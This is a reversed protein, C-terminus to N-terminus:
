FILSNIDIIRENMKEIYLDRRSSISRNHIYFNIKSDEQLYEKTAEILEINTTKALLADFVKDYAPIMRPPERFPKYQDILFFRCLATTNVKRVSPEFYDLYCLDSDILLQIIQFYPERRISIEEAALREVVIDNKYCELYKEIIHELVDQRYFYITNNDM